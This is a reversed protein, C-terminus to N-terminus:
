SRRATARPKRDLQRCLQDTITRNLRTALNLSSIRSATTATSSQLLEMTPWVLGNLLDYADLRRRRPRRRDRTAAPPATAPSSPSSTPAPRASSSISTQSM